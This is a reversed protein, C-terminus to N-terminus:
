CSSVCMASKSRFQLERKGKDRVKCRVSMKLMWGGDKELGEKRKKKSPVRGGELSQGGTM